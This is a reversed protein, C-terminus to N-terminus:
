RRKASSVSSKYYAGIFNGNNVIFKIYAYEHVQSADVTMSYYNWSPNGEVYTVNDTYGFDTEEWYVYSSNEVNLKLGKIIGNVNSLSSWVFDTAIIFTIKGSTPLSSTEIAKEHLNNNYALTLTRVNLKTGLESYDDGSQQQKTVVVSVSASGAKYQNTEAQTVTITATGEFSQSATFTNGNMTGANSPSVSYAVNGGTSNNINITTTGGQLISSSSAYASMTSAPKETVSINIYYTTEKYSDTAAQTIIINDNGAKLAKITLQNGNLTVEIIGSYQTTASTFAGTSNSNITVTKTTGEVMSNQDSLTITASPKGAKQNYFVPIVLEIVEDSMALKATVTTNGKNTEKCKLIPSFEEGVYNMAGTSQSICFIKEPYNTDIYDLVNIQDNQSVEIATVGEKLKLIPTPVPNVPYEQVVVLNEYAEQTAEIEEETLEEVQPQLSEPTGMASTNFVFGSNPKTYWDTNGTHDQVWGAFDTYADVIYKRENPWAWPYSTRTAAELDVNAYLFPVCLIYPADGPTPGQVVSVESSGFIPDNIDKPATAPPETGNPLVRISFGGMNQSSQKSMNWDAVSYCSLSWNEGVEVQQSLANAATAAGVNLVPYRGSVAPQAGLLQHIEGYCKDNFFLYSALTGGAALPTVTASKSGAIHQVKVVVDNYDVDGTGGMDEAALVWSTTQAKRLVAQPVGTSSFARSVKIIWDNFVWDREVDMNKDVEQGDPHTAYFDFGLYLQGDVVKMIYEAHYKSDCANHYAFQKVWTLTKDDLTVEETPVGTPDIDWMLTTGVINVKDDSYSSFHQSANFDNIHEFGELGSNSTPGSGNGKNNNYIQLNNMKALSNVTNGNGDVYNNAGGYVQQVWMADWPVTVTNYAGYHVKSFEKVVKAIEEETVMAPIVFQSPWQDRNVNHSRTSLAALDTSIMDDFSVYGGIRARLATDGNSVVINEANRNIDFELLQSGSVSRYNALLTFTGSQEAYVKIDKTTSTEVTVNGREALNWDQKPDIEGFTEVFEKKFSFSKENYGNDYESCGVLTALAVVTLALFSLLGIKKM